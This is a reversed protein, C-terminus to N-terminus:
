KGIIAGIRMIMKELERRDNRHIPETRGYRNTIV